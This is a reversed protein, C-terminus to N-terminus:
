VDSFSIKLFGTGEVLFDETKNLIRIHRIFNNINLTSVGEKSSVTPKM